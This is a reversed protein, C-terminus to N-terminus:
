RRKSEKLIKKFIDGIFETSIKLKKALKGVEKLINEERIIDKTPLGNRGKLSIITKAIKFRKALLFVLECDIIDVEKRLKEINNKNM